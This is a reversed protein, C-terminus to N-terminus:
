RRFRPDLGAEEHVREVYELLSKYNIRYPSGRRLRYAKLTGSEILTLVFNRSCDLIEAARITSISERPDWPLLLKDPVRFNPESM